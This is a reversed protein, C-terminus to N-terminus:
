VKMTIIRNFTSLKCKKKEEAKGNQNLVNLHNYSGM